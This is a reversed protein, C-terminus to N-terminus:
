RLVCEKWETAPRARANTLTEGPHFKPYYQGFNQTTPFKFHNWALRHFRSWGNCQVRLLGDVDYNPRLRSGVAGFGDVM